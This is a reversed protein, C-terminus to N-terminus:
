IFPFFIILMCAGMLYVSCLIMKSKCKHKLLREQAKRTGCGMSIWFDTLMFNQSRGAQTTTTTSLTLFCKRPATNWLFHQRQGNPPM